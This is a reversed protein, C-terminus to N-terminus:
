KFRRRLKASPINMLKRYKAVTRRAVKIREREQLLNTLKQDSYPQCPDEREIYNRIINKIKENSIAARNEQLLGKSFFYKLNYIGRPLQVKKSKIARSITSKNLGLSQAAEELSLPKLHTVGKELFDNQYEIIFRTINIITNRRQELCRIIWRASNIKVKLYEMTAKTEAWKEQSLAEQNKLKEARKYDSLMREYLISIKVDPSFNENELIEYRNNIKKVIIDPILFNIEYDQFFIRGPKPDFYKKLIDLLHQIESYSLKLDRAIDNFDKKSLKDLYFLILDRIIGKEPLQLHKLQLLLCEKLNRAGIGPLSCNQIMALVQRVKKEGVNLDQAAEQCSIVLYGNYNINGILYEGIKSELEDRAIIRFNLLLHESLSIKHFGEKLRNIEQERNFAPVEKDKILGKRSSFYDLLTNEDRVNTEIGADKEGRGEDSGPSPSQNFNVELVPNDQVEKELWSNLEMSNLQLIKISQYMQPSLQLVQKQETYINQRMM